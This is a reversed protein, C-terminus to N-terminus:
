FGIFLPSNEFDKCVDYNPDFLGIGVMLKYRIRLLRFLDNQRRIFDCELCCLSKFVITQILKMETNLSFFM